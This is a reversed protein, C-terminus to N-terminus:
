RPVEEPDATTRYYKQCYFALGWLMFGLKRDGYVYEPPVPNAHKIVDLGDTMHRIITYGKKRLCPLSIQLRPLKDDGLNM